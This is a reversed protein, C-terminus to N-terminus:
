DLIRRTNARNMKATAAAIACGLGVIGTFQVSPWDNFAVRDLNGLCTGIVTSTFPVQVSYTVMLPNVLRVRIPTGPAASCCGLVVGPPPTGTYPTSISAERLM